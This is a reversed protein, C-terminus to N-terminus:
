VFVHNGSHSISWFLYVGGGEPLPKEVLLGRSLNPHPSYSVPKGEKDVQPLFGAIGWNKEVIQSVMYRGVLSQEYTNKKRIVANYESPFYLEALEILDPSIQYSFYQM